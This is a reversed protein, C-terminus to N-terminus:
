CSGGGGDGGGGCGGGGGDGGGCGGGGGGDFGGVYGYHAARGRARESRDPSPPNGRSRRRDVWAASGLLAGAIVVVWIWTFGM